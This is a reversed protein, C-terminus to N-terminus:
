LPAPSGRAMRKGFVIRIERASFFAKAALTPQDAERLCSIASVRVYGPHSYAQVRCVDSEQVHADTPHSFRWQGHVDVSVSDLRTKMGVDHPFFHTAGGPTGEYPLLVELAGDPLATLSPKGIRGEGAAKTNPLVQWPSPPPEVALPRPPEPEEPPKPPEPMEPTKHRPREPPPEVALVPLTKPIAPGAFLRAALTGSSEMDMQRTLMLAVIAFAVFWVCLMLRFITRLSLM